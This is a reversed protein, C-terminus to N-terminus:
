YGRSILRNGEHIVEEILDDDDFEIYNNDYYWSKFDADDNMKDEIEYTEFGEINGYGDMAFYDDNGNVDSDVGLWFCRLPDGDLFEDINDTIQSEPDTDELYEQYISLDSIDFSLYEDCIYKKFDDENLKKGHEYQTLMYGDHKVELEITM